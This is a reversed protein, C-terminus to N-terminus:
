DAEVAGTQGESPGDPQPEEQEPMQNLWFKTEEIAGDLRSIQQGLEGARHDIQRKEVSLSDRTNVLAGLRQVVLEREIM